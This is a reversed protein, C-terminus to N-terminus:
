TKSALLRFLEDIAAQHLESDSETQMQKLYAKIAKKGVRNIDFHGAEGAYRAFAQMKLRMQHRQRKDGKRSWRETLRWAQAALKYAFYKNKM